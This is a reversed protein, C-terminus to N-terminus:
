IILLIYIYNSSLVNTQCRIFRACSAPCYRNVVRSRKRAKIRCKLYLEETIAKHPYIFCVFYPLKTIYLPERLCTTPSTIDALIFM